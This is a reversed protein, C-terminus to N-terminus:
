FVTKPIIFMPNLGVTDPSFHRYFDMKQNRHRNTRDFIFTEISLYMRGSCFIRNQQNVSSCNSFIFTGIIMLVM